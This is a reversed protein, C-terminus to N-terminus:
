IKSFSDHELLDRAQHRFFDAVHSVSTLRRLPAFLPAPAVVVAEHVVLVVGVEDSVLLSAM